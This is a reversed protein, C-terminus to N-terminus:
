AVPEVVADAQIMHKTNDATKQCNVSKCCSIKVTDTKVYETGNATFKQGVALESFKM